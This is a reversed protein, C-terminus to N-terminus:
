VVLEAAVKEKLTDATEAAVKEKLADATEASYEMLFFVLTMLNQNEGDLECIQDFFYYDFSV